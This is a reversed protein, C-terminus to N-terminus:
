GAIEMLTLTSIPRGWYTSSDSVYGTRNLYVAYSTNYGGINLSYELSSTSSPSDLYEFSVRHMWYDSYPQGGDYTNINWTVPVRSGATEGLGIATGDRLIKGRVQWYDQGINLSGKVLIKSSTSSPTITTRFDTMEAFNGGISSSFTNTVVTQKVQLVAGSVNLGLDAATPTGGAANQIQDVKIISTM